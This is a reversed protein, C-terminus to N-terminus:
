RELHPADSVWTSRALHMPTENRVTGKPDEGVRCQNMKRLDAFMNKESCGGQDGPPLWKWLMENLHRGQCSYNPHSGRGPM